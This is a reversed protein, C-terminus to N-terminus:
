IQEIVGKYSNLKCYKSHENFPGTSIKLRKDGILFLLSFTHPTDLLGVKLM